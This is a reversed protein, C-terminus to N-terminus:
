VGSNKFTQYIFKFTEDSCKKWNYKQSLLVAKRSISIRLEKSLYIQELAQYISEESEPDFYVGGDQLVEPMPGRDSCAIPLGMAMGEILTIPLNECSSAFIFIDNKAILKPLDNHPLFNIEQIFNENTQIKSITSQLLQQAKGSGGGVLSLNINLGSKRLLAIARVVVWQHKYMDAQSIYVVRISRVKQNPWSILPYKNKFIENVGHPIVAVNKLTGCSKQIMKSAYETLFIVGAARRFALNQLLHIVILRFRELGYGYYKMVGPEYSIMTQSLVVSPGFRCFTIASSNFLIDCGVKKLQSNLSVAQWILQKFLSKELEKPNHKILWPYDPLMELLSRYSWIHIEKIGNKAPDCESLIGILHAKAGGSRNRSADIGVILSM